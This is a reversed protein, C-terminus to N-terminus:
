QTWETCVWCLFAPTSLQKGYVLEIVRHVVVVKKCIFCSAVTLFPLAIWEIHFKCKLFAMAQLVSNEWEGLFSESVPGM